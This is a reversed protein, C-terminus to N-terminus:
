DSTTSSKAESKTESSKTEKKDGAGGESTSESSTSPSSSKSAAAGNTSKSDTVYFGSGKFIVGARSILRTLAEAGCESCKEPEKGGRVFAETVADCSGCRYEYIPM